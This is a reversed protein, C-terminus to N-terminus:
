QPPPFQYSLFNEIPELVFNEEEPGNIFIGGKGSYSNARFMVFMAGKVHLVMVFQNKWGEKISGEGNLFEAYLSSKIFKASSFLQSLSLEHTHTVYCVYDFNHKDRLTDFFLLEESELDVGTLLEERTVSFYTKLKNVFYVRYQKKVELPKDTKM